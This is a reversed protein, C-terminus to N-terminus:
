HFTILTAILFTNRLLKNVTSTYTRQRQMETPKYGKKKRPVILVITDLQSM